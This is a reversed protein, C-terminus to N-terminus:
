DLRWRYLASGDCAVLSLPEAIWAASTPPGSLTSGLVVAPGLPMEDAATVPLAVFVPETASITEDRLVLWSGDPAFQLHSCYFGERNVGPHPLPIIRPSDCDWLALHLVYEENRTPSRDVLVAFPLTPHLALETVRRLADRKDAFLDVLAHKVPTLSSDLAWLAHRERGYVVVGGAQVALVVEGVQDETRMVPREGTLDVVRLLHVPVQRHERRMVECLFLRRAADLVHLGALTEELCDCVRHKTMTRRELDFLLVRRSQGYGFTSGDLPAFNRLMGAAIDMDDPIPLGVREETLGESGLHLLTVANDYDRTAVTDPMPVSFIDPTERNLAFIEPVIPVHPPRLSQM